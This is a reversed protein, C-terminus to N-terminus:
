TGNLNIVEVAKATIRTSRETARLLGPMTIKVSCASVIVSPAWRGGHSILVLALDASIALLQLRGAIPFTSSLGPESSPTSGTKTAPLMGSEQGKVTVDGNLAVMWLYPAVRFHWGSSEDPKEEAFVAPVCAALMLGAIPIILISCGQKQFKSSNCFM